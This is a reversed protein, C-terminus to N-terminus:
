KRSSTASPKAKAAEPEPAFLAALDVVAAPELTVRLGLTGNRGERQVFGRFPIPTRGGTPLEDAWGPPVEDKMWALGAATMFGGFTAPARLTSLGTRGALTANPEGKLAVRLHKALVAEDNGLAIWTRAGDPVIVTFDNKGKSTKEVVVTSGTPLGLSAAAKAVTPRKGPTCTTQALRSIGDSWHAAPEEVGFLIWEAKADDKKPGATKRADYGAAFAMPGGTFFLKELQARAERRTAEDCRALDGELADFALDHLVPTEPSWPAHAFGAVDADAPMRFFQAPPAKVVADLLTKGVEASESIPLDIRLEPRGDLTAEVSLAGSRGFLADMVGLAKPESAALEARMGEITWTMRADTDIRPAPPTALAKAEPGLPTKDSTCALRTTGASRLLGCPTAEGDEKWARATADPLGFTTVKTAGARRYVIPQELDFIAIHKMASELAASAKPSGRVIARLRAASRAPSRVVLEDEVKSSTRPAEASTATPAAAPQTAAPACGALVGLSLSVLPIRSSTLM